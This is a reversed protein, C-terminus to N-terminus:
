KVFQFLEKFEEVISELESIAESIIKESNKPKNVTSKVDVDWSFNLKYNGRIIEEIPFRKFRANEQRNSKGNEDEGFCREFEVFQEKSLPRGRKTISPVNTRADYIWVEDTPVGKQFFIVNAKVGQAYPSFTGDPLKLITHLNCSGMLDKLVESAKDDFLCNDPLVMAARGENKLSHQVYQVFNLQKNSTKV